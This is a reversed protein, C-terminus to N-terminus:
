DIIEVKNIYINDIPWDIEDTPISAIKDVIEMGNIVEGFVTYNGDLHNAGDKKQVIFFEFPSAMKYPNDLSSSPMSIAGRKHSHGKNFDNPLLYKGINKRKNSVSINDSNGAQIVFNNIVRYFQTGEFYKKKVLFIFNSRHYPTNDYLLIEIQGFDTYIRVKNEKNNIEYKYLFEIINEDTLRFDNIPNDIIEEKKIEVKLAEFNDNKIESKDGLGKCSYIFTLSFLILVIKQNM